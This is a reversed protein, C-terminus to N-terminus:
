KQTSRIEKKLKDELVFCFKIIDDQINDGIQKAQQPTWKMERAWYGLMAGIAIRLDALTPQRQLKEALKEVFEIGADQDQGFLNAQEEETTNPYSAGLAEAMDGYMYALIVNEQEESM